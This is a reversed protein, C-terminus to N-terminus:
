RGCFSTCATQKGVMATNVSASVVHRQTVDGAEHGEPVAGIDSYGAGKLAKSRPVM